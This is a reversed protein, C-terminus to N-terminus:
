PEVSRRAFFNQSAPGQAVEGSREERAPFPTPGAGPAAGAKMGTHRFPPHGPVTGPRSTLASRGPRARDRRRRRSSPWTAKVREMGSLDDHSRRIEIFKITDTMNQCRPRHDVPPSRRVHSGRGGPGLRGGPYRRRGPVAAARTGGAGVGPGSARRVATCGERGVRRSCALRTCIEAAEPVNRYLGPWALGGLRSGHVSDTQGAPRV